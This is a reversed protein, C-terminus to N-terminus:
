PRRGERYLSYLSKGNVSKYVLKVIPGDPYLMNSLLSIVEAEELGSDKIVKEETLNETASLMFINKIKNKKKELDKAEHAADALSKTAEAMKTTEKTLKITMKAYFGTICVLVVTAIAQIGTGNDDVWSWKWLILLVFVVLFILLAPTLLRKM